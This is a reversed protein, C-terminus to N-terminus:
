AAEQEDDTQSFNSHAQLWSQFRATAM